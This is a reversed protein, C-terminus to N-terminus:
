DFAEIGKKKLLVALVEVVEVLSFVSIGLFIGLAGGLNLILDIVSTKATQSIETYKMAKLYVYNM